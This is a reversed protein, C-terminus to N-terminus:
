HSFRKNIFLLYFYGGIAGGITDALLDAFAADRGVVFFQHFEDSIGYLFSILCALFVLMKRSNFSRTNFIGRAVLFGFPMYLIVHLVIDFHIEPLPTTINPISSAYFIIGSYLIVPFWFRLFKM